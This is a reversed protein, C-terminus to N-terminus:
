ARAEGSRIGTTAMTHFLSAYKLGTWIKLLKERDDKPFLKKLEDLTFIDRAKYNAALPEVEDIPNHAILKERKAERLVINLTYLINNKTGNALSLGVLWNEIEVPNLDNLRRKGFQPIIYNKM